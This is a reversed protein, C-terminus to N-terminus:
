GEGAQSEMEELVRKIEAVFKTAQEWYLKAKRPTADESSAYECRERLHWARNLARGLEKAIIGPRVFELSFMGIVGTHRRPAIEKTLLLARAAHFMAYYAAVIADAYLGDDLALKALRLKEESRRLREEIEAKLEIAM